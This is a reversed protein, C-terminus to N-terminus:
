PKFALAYVKAKRLELRVRVAQGQCQAVEAAVGDTVTATIPQGEAMVKGAVDLVTVKVSGGGGVDATLRLAKGNCAFTRTLVVAPQSEDKPTYGAWGDPRLTALCQVKANLTMGVSSGCYYLRIEDKLVVPSSAAFICGWDYDGPKEGLPIMPAGEDIRNWAKSDPSWALETQFRRKEPGVGLIGTLGLYVGAHCFVHLDHTQANAPGRLVEVPQTWHIYDESDFRVVTRVGSGAMKKWPLPDPLNWGLAGEGWGRTIAVYRKLDPAWIANNHTDAAATVRTDVPDSWNIGNPSFAVHPRGGPAPGSNIMKYRRNPDPEHADRFVGTGHTRLVVINTPKGKYRYVDLAPKEWRIGDKSVAYLLTCNGQSLNEKMVRWKRGSAGPRVVTEGFQDFAQSGPTIDNIWVAQGEMIPSNMTEYWMKFLQETEDFVVNPYMNGAETEWPLEDRILPNAPHKTVTGVRLVANEVREIVRSDLLLYKERAPLPVPSAPNAPNAHCPVGVTCLLLLLAPKMIINKCHKTIRQEVQSAPISASNFQRHFPRQNASVFAFM